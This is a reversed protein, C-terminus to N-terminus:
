GRDEHGPKVSGDLDCLRPTVGSLRPLNVEDHGRMVSAFAVQALTVASGQVPEEILCKESLAVGARLRRLLM